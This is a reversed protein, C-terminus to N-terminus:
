KSEREEQNRIHGSIEYEGRDGKLSLQLADYYFRGDATFNVSKILTIFRGKLSCKGDNDVTGEIPETHGLLSLYGSLRGNEIKTKLEGKKKGLPTNLVIDYIKM